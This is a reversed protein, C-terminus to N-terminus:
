QKKLELETKRNKDATAQSDIASTDADKSAKASQNAADRTSVAAKQASQASKAAAKATEDADTAATEVNRAADAKAVEAADGSTVPPTTVSQSRFYFQMAVLLGIFFVTLGVVIYTTTRSNNIM